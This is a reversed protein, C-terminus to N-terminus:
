SSPWTMYCPKDDLRLTVSELPVSTLISLSIFDFDLSLQRTSYVNRTVFLKQIDMPTRIPESLRIHSM